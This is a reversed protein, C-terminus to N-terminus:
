RPDDVSAFPFTMGTRRSVTARSIVTEVVVSARVAAVAAPSVPSAALEGCM